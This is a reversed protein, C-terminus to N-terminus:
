KRQGRYAAQPIKTQTREAEQKRLENVKANKDEKEDRNPALVVPGCLAMTNGDQRLDFRNIRPATRIRPRIPPINEIAWSYPDYMQRIEEDGLFPGNCDVWAILRERDVGAVKMGKHKGSCANQILKSVPSYVTYPELTALAAPDVQNYGEVVFVGALNKPVGRDDKEKEINWPCNGSVLTYYPEAFPSVDNPRHYVNAWWGHLSPRYTMNLAEYAKSGEKQHCGACYKDLVPQVFRTYGISESAGWAPPTLPVAKKSLAKGKKRLSSAQGARTKMSTEHCGFCGRHEGPMANAFSRMTYIAMGNEDLMQFFLSQGPPVEFNVSGDEEIPVTGLIRKVGDAQFLSVAPGDHQVTKHWTTYTKPDMQIVRLFKGKERLIPPANEFVDNSYFIGVEPKEGVGIKPWKVKDVLVPPQPRAKFPIAHYANQDGVYILEKNGYVDMLYLRFKWQQRPDHYILIEGERASVLFLEESLPYPTKYAGIEGANHYPVHPPPDKPGNGVEPWHVDRTIRFLGDPYNLGKEPDIIGISGDFWCHHGLATFMVKKSNPIARAETLVDPWVSQRGWFTQVNCGDPDCTWLSQVRWLGKDTYEWRTFILRGDNLVSPLYEPEGNSSIIYINKGDGDCRAMSFSHTMPMCRVYSHQRSTCFSIKGDPLYVPDLDDYDGVTLQKVNSGDANAEYLHFSREGVPRYSFLIRKGDFSVDPRWYSGKFSPILDKVETGPTLGVSVLKGGDMAMFGNRHRAEHAWEDTADGKKGLPYPNDILLIRDFDVLPNKFMIVRKIKRVELYFYLPDRAIIVKKMREEVENLAALEATLDPADQMAQIRKAMDRTYQMEDLVKQLTPVNNVQFLWDKELDRNVSCLRIWEFDVQGEGALPDFRLAKMTGNLAITVSYTHWTNDPKLQITTMTEGSFPKQETAWFIEGNSKVGTRARFAIEVSEGQINLDNIGFHPDSGTAQMVLLNDKQEVSCRNFPKFPQPKDFRWEALTRGAMVRGLEPKELGAQVVVACFVFAGIVKGNM